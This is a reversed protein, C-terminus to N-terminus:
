QHDESVHFSLSPAMDSILHIHCYRVTGLRQTLLRTGSNTVTRRTAHLLSGQFRDERLTARVELGRLTHRDISMHEQETRRVPCQLSISLGMLKEKAYSLLLSGATIEETSFEHLENEPIPKELMPSWQELSPEEQGDSHFALSSHGQGLLAGLSETDLHQLSSHLVIEKPGIRAIVSGLASMNTMQTFFDGSSLDVWALGVLSKSHAASSADEANVIAAADGANMHISLLFNNEYPDMFNEDILTGATIVRSVRRTYMLGGKVQDADSNRVEEAIAVQKNLTQVLIKLYRDLYVFQFGAMAVTTEFKKARRQAVKLNLLPAYEEAQEGYLEYFNGVRTLVVCDSFQKVHNLHQQLVTTNASAADDELEPLPDPLQAQPLAAQVPNPLPGQPLNAFQVTASTKAGRNLILRSPCAVPTAATPRAGLPSAAQCSCSSM